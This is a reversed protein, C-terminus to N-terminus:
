RRMKWVPIHIILLSPINPLRKKLLGDKSAVSIEYGSKAGNLAKAIARGMNGFGILFINM